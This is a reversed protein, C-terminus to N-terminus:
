ERVELSVGSSATALDISLDTVVALRPAGSSPVILVRDDVDAWPQWVSQARVQSQPGSLMGAAAQAAQASSGIGDVEVRRAYLGWTDPMANLGLVGAREAARVIDAGVSTPSGPRSDVAVGVYRRTRDTVVAANCVDDDTVSGEFEVLTSGRRVEWDPTGSVVRPLTVRWRGELDCFVRWGCAQAVSEVAAWRSGDQGSECLMVPLDVDVVGDDITLNADPCAAQILKALAGLASGRVEVDALLNARQVLYEHSKASLSWSGDAGRPSSVIRGIGQAAAVWSSGAKVRAVVRLSHGAGFDLADWERRQAVDRAEVSSLDPVTVALEHRHIYAASSKRSAASVPVAVAGGGRLLVTARVDVQPVQGAALLSAVRADPASVSVM